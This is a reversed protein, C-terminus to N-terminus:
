AIEKVRLVEKGKFTLIYNGSLTQDVLQKDILVKLVSWERKSLVVKGRGAAGNYQRFEQATHVRRLIELQKDSLNKVEEEGKCNGNGKPEFEGFDGVFTKWVKSM